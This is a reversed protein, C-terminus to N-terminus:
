GVKGNRLEKDGWGMNMVNEFGAMNMVEMEISSREPRFHAECCINVCQTLSMRLVSQWFVQNYHSVSIVCNFDCSCM